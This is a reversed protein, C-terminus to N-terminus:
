KVNELSMWVMADILVENRKILSYYEMTHIDWLQKV